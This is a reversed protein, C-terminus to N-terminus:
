NKNEDLTGGPIFLTTFGVVRREVEDLVIRDFPVINPRHKSLLAV